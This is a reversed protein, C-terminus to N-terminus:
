TTCARRRLTLWAVAGAIAALTGLDVYRFAGHVTDWSSGLAWGAGAFGFCWIASGVLSLAVYSAFRARLVGATVSVFSRVVPTVRGLVVAARGHRAFWLEARELREADVRLWRGHRRVFRRGGRRGIAWGIIAGNLSGLTGAAALAVYAAPGTGIGGVGHGIVGAAVAGALLMVLESAAPLLADIAMLAFVAVVGHAVVANIVNTTV